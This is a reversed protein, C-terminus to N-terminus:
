CRISLKIKDDEKVKGVVVCDAEDGNKAWSQGTGSIVNNEVTIKFSSYDTSKVCFITINNNEISSIKCKGQTRSVAAKVDGVLDGASVMSIMSFTLTMSIIFTKIM